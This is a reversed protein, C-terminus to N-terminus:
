QTSYEEIWNELITTDFAKSKLHEVFLNLVEMDTMPATTCTTDYFGIEGKQFAIGDVVSLRYWRDCNILSFYGFQYFPPKLSDNDVVTFGDEVKAKGVGAAFILRQNELGELLTDGEMWEPVIQGLYDLITPAIDINQVNM